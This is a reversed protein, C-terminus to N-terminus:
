EGGEGMEARAKALAAHINDISDDAANIEDHDVGDIDGIANSLSTLADAVHEFLAVLERQTEASMQKM